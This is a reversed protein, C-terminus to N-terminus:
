REGSTRLLKEARRYATADALIADAANTLGVAELICRAPIRQASGSRPRNAKWEPLEHTYEVLRWDDYDEFKRSTLQLLEVQGRSLMAVGPDELLEVDRPGSNRFFRGWEKAYYDSGKICDYTRSLVPGNDMAYVADGTIPFGTERISDRDALYLLKILRLRSMRHPAVAKLLVGTAEILRQCDFSYSM